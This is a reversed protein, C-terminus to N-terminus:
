DQRVNRSTETGSKQKTVGYLNGRRPKTTIVPLVQKRVQEKREKELTKKEDAEKEHQEWVSSDKRKGGEGALYALANRAIERKTRPDVASEFDDLATTERSPKPPKAPSAGASQKKGGGAGLSELAAQGVDKPVQATQKVVQKATEGLEETIAGIISGPNPM